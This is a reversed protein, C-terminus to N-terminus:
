QPSCLHAAAGEIIRIDRQPYPIEIGKDKFERWIQLFLESRLPMSGQEPDPIWAIVELDVGNEGFGKVFAGPEPSKMIRPHAATVRLLVELAAELDSQYSVQVPLKLMARRDTFSHNVVTNTILAENPIIAETGDLSRLVTYRTNLQSVVGQRNDVTVLDGLRISRELLIIFGSVYNSAIKQLGFGLGVGLAGGFVSLVTIDIGVAPLAVLIALVLLVARIVKGLMVRISSNLHEAKMLRAEALRALWLAAVLTVVVTVIAQLVLLVSITQKGATFSLSDLFHAVHPLAGTIHLAVGAWVIYAIARESGKLAANPPFAHRLGYIALRIIALSLLLASAVDLLPVPTDRFFLAKGLWVLLLAAVPFLIRALGGWGLHWPGPAAQIKPRLLYSVLWALAVGVFIVAFEKLVLPQTLDSFEDILAALLEQGQAM